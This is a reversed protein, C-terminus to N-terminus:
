TVREIIANEVKVNNGANAVSFQATVKLVPNATTTNITDATTNITSGTGSGAGLSNCIASGSAGVSRVTILFDTWYGANTAAGNWTFAGSLKVGALYASLTMSNSAQLNVLSQVRVRYTAGVVLDGTPLTATLVDTEVASNSLSFESALSSIGGLVRTRGETLNWNTGNSVIEVSQGPSVSFASLGDITQSSTTLIAIPATHTNRFTYVSTNGVATPLTPAAGSALLTIYWNGAVAGLTSAGSLTTVATLTVVQNGNAKVTGTGLSQLRLDLNSDVGQASITPHVATTGSYLILAGNGKPSLTLSVNTDAGKASIGPQGGTAANNIQIYNVASGIPVLTVMNAGNTDLIATGIRPSTLTKLTMVQSANLTVVQDSGVKVQGTGLARLSLDCNADVSAVSIAAPQGSAAMYILVGGSGKPFLGLSVNTDAGAAGVGPTGGAVQTAVTPYNVSNAPTTFGLQTVGGQALLGASTLSYPQMAQAMAFQSFANVLTARQGTTVSLPTNAAGQTWGTNDWIGYQFAAARGQDALAWVFSGLVGSIGHFPAVMTYQTLQAGSSVDQGTGFEGIIIPKGLKSAWTQIGQVTVLPNYIHLDIFDLGNTGSLALYWLNNTQSWNRGFSDPNVSMTLPLNAVARIKAALALVDSALLAVGYYNWVVTGDTIGTSTGSPGTGSSASTGGTTAVYSLGGNNVYAGTAYATSQAWPTGTSGNVAGEQFLDLGIVNNHQGLMTATAVISNTLGVQQYGGNVAVFDFQQCVCPYFWMGLSACYEVMQKFQADYTAQSLPTLNDPRIYEWVVTGDTISTGTGTPGGSSASTGATTVRYVNGGKTRINDVSYATSAAWAAWTISPAVVAYPSMITRIANLGLAAARDIQPKIWNTWDWEAWMYHWNYGPKVVVNGGRLKTRAISPRILQYSDAKAPLAATTADANTLTTQVSTALDTKPVGGGPKQYATDAKGLSTTVGTALDTTSIGGVPKQYATDAKGLSTVVPTALDATTIGGSPKTYKGDATSQAAAAATQATSAATQAATASTQATSATTQAADATSQAANAANLASVAFTNAATATSSATDATSQAAQAAALAEDAGPGQPGTPGAPGTPGTAGTAGTDGKDGKSGKPGTPGTPGTPGAPGTPGTPGAVGRLGQPGAPGTAGAPGTLGMGGTIGRLGQEGQPGRPGAPGTPGAPGVDGRAGRDGAPGPFGRPGQPGTAGNSGAAGRDGKDGKDGKPGRIGPAGPTGPPGQPGPPGGPTGPPGQPGAPGQPGMTEIIRVTEGPSVSNPVLQLGEAPLPATVWLGPSAEQEWTQNLGSFRWSKGTSDVWLAM